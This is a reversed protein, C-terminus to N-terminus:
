VGVWLLLVGHKCVLPGSLRYLLVIICLVGGGVDCVLILIVVVVVIAFEVGVCYCQCEFVVVFELCVCVISSHARLSVSLTVMWSSCVICGLVSSVESFVLFLRLFILIVIFSCILIHVGM